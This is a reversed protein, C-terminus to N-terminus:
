NDRPAASRKIISPARRWHFVPLGNEQGRIFIARLAAAGACQPSSPAHARGAAPLDDPLSPASRRQPRDLQEAMLHVVGEPSKQVKGEALLLRAGMVEKRFREFTRTGSWWMASAPRTAVPHHLHRQRRGAAPAGAGRRRLARFRRRALRGRGQLLRHRGRRLPRAPVPHSLREAVPAHDPLRGACTRQLPMLPLPAIHKRARIRRRVRRSCPCRSTMPCAACRGCAKAATWASAAFPMPKRWSSWPASPCARHPPRFRRFRSLWLRSQGHDHTADAERFGDIQRLGLRPMTRGQEDRELTCDWDSFAADPALVTVGHERACRVIEAPAYFGMPQSNLLAAAFAAPHHKKIWASIYVLLAFSAAHSEPFGYSGFGKIQEFCAHAFEEEYGRAIM